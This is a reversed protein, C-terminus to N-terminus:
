WQGQKDRYPLPIWETTRDGLLGIEKGEIILHYFCCYKIHPAQPEVHILLSHPLLINRVNNFTQNQGISFNSLQFIQLPDWFLFRKLTLGCGYVLAIPVGSKYVIHM